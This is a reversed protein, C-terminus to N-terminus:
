RKMRGYKTGKRAKRTTGTKQDSQSLKLWPPSRSEAFNTPKWFQRSIPPSLRASSRSRSCRSTRRDRRDEEDEGQREEERQEEVAVALAAVEELEGEVHRQERGRHEDPQDPLEDRVVVEAQDVQDQGRDPEAPHVDEAVSRERQERDHEGLDPAAEAEPREVEERAQLVDGLLQEVRRADVARLPKWRKRRTVIGSRRGISRNATTIAIMALKWTNSVTYTRVWPPGYSDVEVITQNM